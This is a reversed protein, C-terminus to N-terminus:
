VASLRVAQSADISTSYESTLLGGVKRDLLGRFDYSIMLRLVALVSPMVTGIGNNPRAFSTISYLASRGSNAWLPCANTCRLHGSELTFRVNPRILMQRSNHAM